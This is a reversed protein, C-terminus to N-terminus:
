DTLTVQSFDSHQEDTKANSLLSYKVDEKGNSTKLKQLRYVEQQRLTGPRLYEDDDEEDDDADNYELEEDLDLRRFGGRSKGSCRRTTACLLIGAVSLVLLLSGTLVFSGIANTSIFIILLAGDLQIRV